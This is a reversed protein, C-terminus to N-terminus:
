KKDFEIVIKNVTLCEKKYSSNINNKNILSFLKTKTIQKM